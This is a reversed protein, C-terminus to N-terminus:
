ILTHGIAGSLKFSVSDIKKWITHLIRKMENFPVVWNRLYLVIGSKNKPTRWKRNCAVAKVTSEYFTFIKEFKCFCMPFYRVEPTKLLKKLDIIEDFDM